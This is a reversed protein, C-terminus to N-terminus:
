RAEFCAGNSAIKIANKAEMKRSDLADEPLDFNDLANELTEIWKKESARYALRAAPWLSYKKEEEEESRRKLTKLNKMRKKLAFKEASSM